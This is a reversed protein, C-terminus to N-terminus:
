QIPEKERGSPSMVTYVIENLLESSKRLAELPGTNELYWVKDGDGGKAWRLLLQLQMGTELDCQILILLYFDM